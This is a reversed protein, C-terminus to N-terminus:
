NYKFRYLIVVLPYHYFHLLPLTSRHKNKLTIQKEVVLPFPNPIHLGKIELIQLELVCVQHEDIGICTVAETLSGNRACFRGVVQQLPVQLPHLNKYEIRHGIFFRSHRQHSLKISVHKQFHIKLNYKFFIGIKMIFFIAKLLTTKFSLVCKM